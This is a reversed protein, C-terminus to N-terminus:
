TLRLEQCRTFLPHNGAANTEIEEHFLRVSTIASSEFVDCTLSFLHKVIALRFADEECDRSYLEPETLLLQLLNLSPTLTSSASPNTIDVCIRVLCIPVFYRV